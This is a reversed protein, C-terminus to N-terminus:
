STLKLASCTADDNRRKRFDMVSASTVVLMGLPLLCACLMVIWSLYPARAFVGQYPTFAQTSTAKDRYKQINVILIPTETKRTKTPSKGVSDIPKDDLIITTSWAQTCTLNSLCLCLLFVKIRRM